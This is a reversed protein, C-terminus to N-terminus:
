INNFPVKLEAIPYTSLIDQNLKILTRKSGPEVTDPIVSLMPLKQM